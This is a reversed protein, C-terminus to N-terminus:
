QLTVKRVADLLMKQTVPKKLYVAAGLSHSLDPDDWASCIIVPIHKLMEDLKITQLLEWGDLQPMM